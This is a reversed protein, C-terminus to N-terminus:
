REDAQGLADSPVLRLLGVSVRVAEQSSAILEHRATPGTWGDVPAFHAAERRVGCARLEDLFAQRGPRGLDGVLVAECGPARLAEVCRRALAVSTSRQYLLDAAVVLHATPLPEHAAKIDFLATDIHLERGLHASSRALSARLLELPEARYDTALVSAAGCAAATLSVLGTGCGLEVVSKGALDLSAVASAVVQAAPWLVVGYPDDIASGAIDDSELAADVLAAQAGTDAELLRLSLSETIPVHLETTSSSSGARASAVVQPPPLYVAAVAGMFIMM